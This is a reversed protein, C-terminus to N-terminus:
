NINDLLYIRSYALYIGRLTDLEVTLINSYYYGAHQFLDTTHANIDSLFSSM